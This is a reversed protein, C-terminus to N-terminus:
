PARLLDNTRRAPRERLRVVFLLTLIAGVTFGISIFLAAQALPRADAPPPESASPVIRETGGYPRPPVREYLPAVQAIRM